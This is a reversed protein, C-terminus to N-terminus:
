PHGGRRQNLDVYVYKANKGPGAKWEEVTMWPGGVVTPYLTHHPVVNPDHGRPERCCLYGDSGNPTVYLCQDDPWGYGM